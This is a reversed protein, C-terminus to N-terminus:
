QGAEIADAFAPTPLNELSDRPEAGKALPSQSMVSNM